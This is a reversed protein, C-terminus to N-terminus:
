ADAQVKEARQGDVMLQGGDEMLLEKGGGYVLVCVELDGRLLLSGLCCDRLRGRDVTLGERLWGGDERLKGM